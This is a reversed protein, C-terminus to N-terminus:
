DQELEIGQARLSQQLWKQAAKVSLWQSQWAPASPVTIDAEVEVTTPYGYLSDPATIRLVQRVDEPLSEWAGMVVRRLMSPHMLAFALQDVQLPEDAQKVPTYAAILAKDGGGRASLPWMLTLEVRRGVSELLDCLAAVAAGRARITDHGIACSVVGDMVVRVIRGGARREDTDRADLWCEPAGETVLGMDMCLGQVDLVLEQQRLQGELRGVLEARLREIEDRGEAWGGTALAMAAEFTPTGRWKVLPGNGSERSARKEAPMTTPADTVVDFFESMNSCRLAWMGGPEKTWQPTM